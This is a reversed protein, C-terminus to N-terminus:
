AMGYQGLKPKWGRLGRMVSPHLSTESQTAFYSESVGEVSQSALGPVKKRDNNARLVEAYCWRQVCAPLERAARATWVCTGDTVTAGIEDPWTPETAGTTGPTTCEFRLPLYNKSPRVWSLISTSVFATTASWDTIQDPALFGAYYTFTSPESSVWGYERYIHGNDADLEWNTVDVGDVDVLLTGPEVPIRTLYFTEVLTSELTQQVKARIPNVGLYNIMDSSAFDILSNLIEDSENGTEEM